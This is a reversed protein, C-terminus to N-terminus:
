YLTVVGVQHRLPPARHGRGPLHDGDGPHGAGGRGGGEGRGGAGGVGAAGVM